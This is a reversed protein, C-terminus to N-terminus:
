RIVAVVYVTHDGCAGSGRRYSNGADLFPVYRLLPAAVDAVAEAAAAACAAPNFICATSMALREDEVGHSRLYDQQSGEQVLPHARHSRASLSDSKRFRIREKAASFGRHTRPNRPRFGARTEGARARPRVYAARTVRARHSSSARPSSPAACPARSVADDCLGIVGQLTAANLQAALYPFYPETRGCKVDSADLPANTRVAALAARDVARRHEVHRCQSPERQYAGGGCM